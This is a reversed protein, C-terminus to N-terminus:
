AQADGVRVEWNACDILHEVERSVRAGLDPQFPEGKEWHEAAEDAALPYGQRCLEWVAQSQSSTM